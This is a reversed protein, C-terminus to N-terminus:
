KTFLEKFIKLIIIHETNGLVNIESSWGQLYANALREIHKQRAQSFNGSEVEQSGSLLKDVLM